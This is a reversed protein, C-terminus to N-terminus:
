QESNVKPYCAKSNHPPHCISMWRFKFFFLKLLEAVIWGMGQSAQFNPWTKNNGYGVVKWKGKQCKMGSKRNESWAQGEAWTQLNFGNFIETKEVDESKLFFSLMLEGGENKERRLNFFIKGKGREFKRIQFRCLPMIEYSQNSVKQGPSLGAEQRGVELDRSYVSLQQFGLPPDRWWSCGSVWCWPVVWIFLVLLGVM